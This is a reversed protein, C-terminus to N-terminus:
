RPPTQGGGSLPFFGLLLPGCRYVEGNDLGVWQLTRAGTVGCHACPGGAKSLSGSPGTSSPTPPTAPAEGRGKRKQPRKRLGFPPLVVLEDRAHRLSRALEAAEEDSAPRLANGQDDLYVLQHMPALQTTSSDGSDCEGLSSGSLECYSAMM